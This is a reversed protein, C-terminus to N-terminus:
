GWKKYVCFLNTIYGLLDDFNLVFNNAINIIMMIFTQYYKGVFTNSKNHLTPLQQQALSLSDYDPPKGDDM